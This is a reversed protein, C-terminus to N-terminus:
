KTDVSVNLQLNPQQKQQRQKEEAVQPIIIYFHLMYRTDM